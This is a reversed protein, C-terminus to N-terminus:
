VRKLIGGKPFPPNPPIILLTKGPESNTTVVSIFIEIKGNLAQLLLSEVEEIGDENEIYTLLASTDLVYESM